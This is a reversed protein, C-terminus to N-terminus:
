APHLKAFQGKARREEIPGEDTLHIQADRLKMLASMFSLDIRWSSRADLDTRSLLHNISAIQGQRMERQVHCFFMEEKLNKILQHIDSNFEQSYPFEIELNQLKERCDEKARDLEDCVVEAAELALHLLRRLEDTRLTLNKFM